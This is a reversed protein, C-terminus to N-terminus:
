EPKFYADLFAEPDRITGDACLRKFASAASHILWFVTKGTDRRESIVSIDAGEDNDPKWIPHAWGFALGAAAAVSELSSAVIESAVKKAYKRRFVHEIRLLHARPHPESYRYVRAYRDSKKSGVYCTQGTESNQQGNSRMREHSVISVFDVPRVDTEIDSAIDIRTIREACGALIHLIEGMAIIRECGQGSIEVCCHVLNPSAFLSIGGEADTWVDTYPARSREGKAWSGGFVAQVVTKPFMDMFGAQIALAYSEDSEDGYIMPMTFTLWDIHTRMQVATTPRRPMEARRRDM